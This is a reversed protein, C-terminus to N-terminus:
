FGYECIYKNTSTNKMQELCKKVRLSSFDPNSLKVM